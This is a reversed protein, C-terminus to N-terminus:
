SGTERLSGSMGAARGLRLARRRSSHIWCVFFVGTLWVLHASGALISFALKEQEFREAPRELSIAWFTGGRPVNRIVAAVYNRGGGTVPASFGYWGNFFTGEPHEFAYKSVDKIAADLEPYGSYPPEQGEALKGCIMRLENCMSPFDRFEAIGRILVIEQERQLNVSLVTFHHFLLGTFAVSGALVFVGMRDFSRKLLVSLGLISWAALFAMVTGSQPNAEGSASNTLVDPYLGLFTFSWHFLNTLMMTESLVHGTALAPLFLDFPLRRFCSAWIMVAIVAQLLTQEFWIAADVAASGGEAAAVLQIAAAITMALGLGAQLAFPLFRSPFLSSM